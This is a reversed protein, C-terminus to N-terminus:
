CFGFFFCHNTRVEVNWSHCWFWVYKFFLDCWVGLDTFINCFTYSLHGVSDHSRPKMSNVEKLRPMMSRLSRMSFFLIENFFHYWMSDFDIMHIHWVCMYILPMIAACQDKGLAVLFTHVLSLICHSFRSSHICVLLERLVIQQVFSFMNGVFDMCEVKVRLYMGPIIQISVSLMHYCVTPENGSNSRSMLQLSRCVSWVCFCLVVFEFMNLLFM